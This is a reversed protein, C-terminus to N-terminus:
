DSSSNTRKKGAFMILVIALGHLLVAGLAGTLHDRRTARGGRVVQIISILGLPVLLV